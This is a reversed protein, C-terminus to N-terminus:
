SFYTEMVLIGDKLHCKVHLSNHNYRLLHGVDCGHCLHGVCQRVRVSMCAGNGRERQCVLEMAERDSVYLSWQRVRVSM